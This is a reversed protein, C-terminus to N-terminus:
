GLMERRSLKSMIGLHYGSAGFIMLSERPDVVMEYAYACQEFFDRRALWTWGASFTWAHVFIRQL